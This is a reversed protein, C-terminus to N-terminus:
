KARLLTPGARMVAQQNRSASPYTPNSPSDSDKWVKLPQLMLLCLLISFEASASALVVYLTCTNISGIQEAEIAKAVDDRELAGGRDEQRTSLM